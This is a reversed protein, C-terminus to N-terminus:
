KKSQCTVCVDAFPMAELRGQEISEKCKPCQGYTGNEIAKLAKDIKKLVHALQEELSMNNEYDILEMTNDDELDGYDPYKKLDKIKKELREKEKLLIEQQNKIFKESLPM